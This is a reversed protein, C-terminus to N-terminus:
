AERVHEIAEDQRFQTWDPWERNFNIIWKEKIANLVTQPEHGARLAGDFGLIIVDIWELSHPERQIEKFETKIHEIVGNTRLGPGFTEQSWKRVRELDNWNICEDHNQSM